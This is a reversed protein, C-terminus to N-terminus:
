GGKKSCDVAVKEKLEFNSTEMMKWGDKKAQVIKYDDSGDSIKFFRDKSGCYKSQLKTSSTVKRWMLNMAIEVRPGQYYAIRTPLRDGKKLSIVSGCRMRTSTLGDNDVVRVFGAGSDVEVVSGDDSVTALQYDGEADTDNLKILTEFKLGFWEILLEDKSNLLKDGARNEFGVEFRRTPVNLRSFYLVTDEIRTGKSFIDGLSNIESNPNPGEYIYLSGKIGPTITETTAFPDCIVNTPNNDEPVGQQFINDQGSTGMKARLDFPQASGACNQFALLITLSAVLIGWVMFIRNGM